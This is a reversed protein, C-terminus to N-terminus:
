LIDVNDRVITFLNFVNLTLTYVTKQSFNLFTVAMEKNGIHYRSKSYSSSKRLICNEEVLRIMIDDNTLIRLEAKTDAVRTKIYSVEGEIKPCEEYTINNKLIDIFKKWECMMFNYFIYLTQETWSCRISMLLDYYDKPIMTPKGRWIWNNYQRKTSISLYDYGDSYSSNLLYANKRGKEGPLRLFTRNTGRMFLELNMKIVKKLDNWTKLFEEKWQMYEKSCILM